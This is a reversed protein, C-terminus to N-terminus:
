QENYNIPTKSGFNLDKYPTKVKCRAITPHGSFLEAFTKHDVIRIILKNEEVAADLRMDTNVRNSEDWVSKQSKSILETINGKTESQCFKFHMVGFSYKCVTDASELCVEWSYEMADESTENMDWTLTQGQPIPFSFQATQGSVIATCEKEYVPSQASGISSLSLSILIVLGITKM